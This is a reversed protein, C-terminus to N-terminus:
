KCLVPLSAAIRLDSTFFFSFPGSLFFLRVLEVLELLHSMRPNQAVLGSPRLTSYLGACHRSVLIHDSLGGINRFTHYLTLVARGVM